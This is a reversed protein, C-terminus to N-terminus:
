EMPEIFDQVVFGIEGSEIVEVPYWLYGDANQGEGTVVLETGLALMAVIEASASPEARLNVSSETIAVTDGAALNRPEATAAPDADAASGGVFAIYRPSGGIHFPLVRILDPSAYDAIEFAAWGSGSAGPLYERSVDPNPPTLTITHDWPEGDPSAIALASTSFFAPYPSVNTVSVRLGIMTGGNLVGELGLARLRFDASDIVAQDYIVEEVTVEWGGTRVTEGIAVPRAPYAGADSDPLGTTTVLAPATSPSLAFITDAWNGGLFPSDFWLTASAPDDVLFPIWGELAEGAGVVGQLAPEPMDITPPRRLVGDTGTAAFESLNIARPGDSLSEATMRVALYGLGDAAPANEANAEQVLAAADAGGQVEMVTFRWPGVDAPHGLPVLNGPSTDAQALSRHDRKGGIS